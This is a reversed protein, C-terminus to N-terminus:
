VMRTASDSQSQLRFLKQRHGEEVHHHQTGARQDRFPQALGPSRVDVEQFPHQRLVERLATLGVRLRCTASIPKVALLM